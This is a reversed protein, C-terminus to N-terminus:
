KPNQNSINDLANLLIASPQDKDDGIINKISNLYIIPHESSIGDYKSIVCRDFHRKITEVLSVM